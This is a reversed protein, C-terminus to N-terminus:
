HRTSGDPASGVVSMIGETDITNMAEALAASDSAFSEDWVNSNGFEDVVELLWGGDGDDYIAIDVSTGDRVVCQCLPSYVPDEPDAISPHMTTRSAFASTEHLTDEFGAAEGHCRKFKKGSGCPCPENRGVKIPRRFPEPKGIYNPTEGRALQQRRRELWYANIRGISDALSDAYTQYQDLSVDNAKQEEWGQPTGYLLIVTFWDPHQAMLPAWSAQDLLMGKVYGLCWEDLVPVARGEFDSEPIMPEFQDPVENLTANVGNWHRMILGIIKQADATTAFAPSDEGNDADWIWRLMDSPMMVNPGSALATMFGDMMSVDMSAEPFEESILLEDLLDIEADDLAHELYDKNKM